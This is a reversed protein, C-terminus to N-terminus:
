YTRESSYVVSLMAQYQPKAPELLPYALRSSKIAQTASWPEVGEYEV